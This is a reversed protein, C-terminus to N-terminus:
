VHTTCKKIVQFTSSIPGVASQDHGLLFYNFIDKSGFFTSFYGLRRTYPRKKM